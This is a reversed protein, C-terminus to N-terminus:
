TEFGRLGFEMLAMVDLVGYGLNPTWQPNSEDRTQRTLAARVQNSSWLQELNGSKLSHKAQASFLLAIAGTVHPAAMSTGCNPVVDSDTGARAAIVSVGPASIEPKPTRGNRTPGCSSFTGNEYPVRAHVAAVSIVSEATGPVSLTCGESVCTNFRVSHPREIWAHVDLSVDTVREGFIMLIWKGQAIRKSSSNISILLRSDGNDIHSKVFQLSVSYGHSYPYHLDKSNDGKLECQEGNPDEITFKYLNRHSCWLEIIDSVRNTSPSILELRVIQGRNVSVQAHIALSRENGASKVIARGRKRGHELFQNFAGELASSGDHAGGNMGQSVNVVLPLKCGEALEDVFALADIHSCSYGLSRPQGHEPMVKTKVAIIRAKPAVGGAFGGCSRGAAISAVHTGHGEKDRGLETSVSRTKVFAAIEDASYLRGYCPRGRIRPAKAPDSDDTQDWVALVRSRGQEDLFTEHLLDIGGDIIAIITADGHEVSPPLHIQSARVFPVSTECDPSTGPRSAEISIVNPDVNLAELGESSVDCSVIDGIQAYFRCIPGPPPQWAKRVRAIVRLRCSNQDESSSNPEIIARQQLEIYSDVRHEQRAAFIRSIEVMLATQIELQLDTRNALRTQLLRESVPEEMEIARYSEVVARAIAAGDHLVQLSHSVDDNHGDALDQKLAQEDALVRRVIERAVPQGVEIIHDPFVAILSDLLVNTDDTM